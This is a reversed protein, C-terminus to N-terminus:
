AAFREKATAEPISLARAIEEWTRGQRRAERVLVATVDEALRLFRGVTSLPDGMAALTDQAWEVEPTTQSDHDRQRAEVEDDRLDREEINVRYWHRLQEPHFGAKEFRRQLARPGIGFRGDLRDLAHRAKDSLQVIRDPGKRRPIRITEPVPPKLSLACADSVRMGTEALFVAMDSSEGVRRDVKEDLADLARKKAELGRVPERATPVRKPIELSASPDEKFNRPWNEALYGYFSRLAAVRNGYSSAAGRKEHLWSRLHSAELEEVPGFQATDRELTELYRKYLKCTSPALEKDHELWTLWNAVWKNM